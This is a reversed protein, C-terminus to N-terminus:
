LQELVGRRILEPINSSDEIEIKGKLMVGFSQRETFFVYYDDDEELLNEEYPKVELCFGESFEIVLQQTLEDHQVELADLNQPFRAVNADIQKWTEAPDASSVQLAGGKKLSWDSLATWLQVYRQEHTVFFLSLRAGYHEEVKALRAGIISSTLQAITETM